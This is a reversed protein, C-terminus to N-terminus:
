VRDPGSTVFLIARSTECDPTQIDWNIGVCMCPWRAHHLNIGDRQTCGTYM